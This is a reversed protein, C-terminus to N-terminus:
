QNCISLQRGSVTSKKKKKESETPMYRMRREELFQRRKEVLAEERGWEPTDREGNEYRRRKTEPTDLTVRSIIERLTEREDAPCKNLLGQQYENM